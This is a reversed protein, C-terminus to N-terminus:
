AIAGEKLVQDVTKPVLNYKENLKILDVDASYKFDTISEKSLIKVPLLRTAYYVLLFFIHPLKIIFPKNGFHNAIKKIFLDYKIKEGGIEITEKNHNEICEVILDAVDGVFVPQVEKDIIPIIKSNKAYNLLKEFSKSKNGYIWASRIITYNIGSNQIEKEIFRKSNAYETEVPYNVVISSTFILKAGGKMNKIVNMASDINLKKLNSDESYIAAVLHIVVDSKRVQETVAIDNVDAVLLKYRPGLYLNRRSLFVFDYKDSLNKKIIKELLHQGVFGTIGTIFVTKKDVV